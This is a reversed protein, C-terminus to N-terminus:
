RTKDSLLTGGQIGNWPINGNSQLHTQLQSLSTM